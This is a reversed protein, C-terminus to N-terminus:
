EADDAEKERLTWQVALGFGTAAIWAGLWVASSDPMWDPIREGLRLIAAYTAGIMMASGALATVLSASVAPFSLGILLGLAVGCLASLVISRRVGPPATMWREAVAARLEATAAELRDRLRSVAGGTDAMRGVDDIPDGSRAEGADGANERASDIADNADQLLEFTDKLEDILADHSSDGRAIDSDATSAAVEGFTAVGRFEAWALVGLPFASGLLLALLVGMAPRYLIWAFIAMVTAGGLPLTWAPVPLPVAAGVVYGTAAGIACGCLVLAPRLIRRGCGWLVLGAVGVAGLAIMWEPSLASIFEAWSQGDGGAAAGVPADSPLAIGGESPPIPTPLATM